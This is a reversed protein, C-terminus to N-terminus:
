GVLRDLARAAGRLAPVPATIVWTPIPELYPGFRGKAEFRARFIASDFAGGLRPVIGGGVYVGARAGFTLALNGSVSGLLGAFRRLAEACAPDTSAHAPIDAPAFPAATRDDLACLARYLNVLGPGSLAREASVHGLEARLWDIVAAERADGPALTVHGGEGGVVIERGGDGTVLAAVGLGSGPGLVVRPAGPQVQGGGIRRLDTEGLCPLSAALAAFDNLVLCQEAGLSAQLAAISFTWERNTMAVRDGDIPTAIGFAVCRPRAVRRDAMFRAIVAELSAFEDCRYTQAQPLTASPADQWVWRAHTAGVDGLLRPYGNAPSM